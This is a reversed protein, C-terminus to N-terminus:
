DIIEDKNSKYIEKTNEQNNNSQIKDGMTELKEKKENELKNIKTELKEITTELQLFKEDHTKFGSTAPNLTLKIEEKMEKKLTDRIIDLEEKFVIRLYDKVIDASNENFSGGRMVKPYDILLIKTEKIKNQIMPALVVFILVGIILMLILVTFIMSFMATALLVILINNPDFYTELVLSNPILNLM